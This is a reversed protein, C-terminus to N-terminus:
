ATQAGHAGTRRVHALLAAHHEAVKVTYDVVPVIALLGDLYPRPSARRRPDPDQEIGALFEAM